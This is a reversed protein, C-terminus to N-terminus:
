PVGERLNEETTHNGDGRKWEPKKTYSTARGKTTLTSQKETRACFLEGAPLNRHEGMKRLFKRRTRKGRLRPPITSAKKERSREKGWRSTPSM